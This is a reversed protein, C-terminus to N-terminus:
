NFPVDFNGNATGKNGDRDESTISFSGKMGKENLVDFSITGTTNFGYEVGEYDFDAQVSQNDITLTTQSALACGFSIKSDNPGFASMTAGTIGGGAAYTPLINIAEWSDGNITATVKNAFTTTNTNNNGDDDDNGAPGDDSCAVLALMLILALPTRLFPM